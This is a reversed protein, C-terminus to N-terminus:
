LWVERYKNWYARRRRQIRRYELLRQHRIEERYALLRRKRKRCYSYQQRTYPIDQMLEDIKNKVEYGDVDRRPLERNIWKFYNKVFEKFDGKYKEGETERLEDETLNYDDKYDKKVEDFFDDTTYEGFEESFWQELQKEKPRKKTSKLNPVDHLFKWIESEWHNVNYKDFGLIYIKALHLFLVELEDKYHAEVDKREFAFSIIRRGDKSYKAWYKGYHDRM